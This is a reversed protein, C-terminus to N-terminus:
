VNNERDSLEGVWEVWSVDRTGMALPPLSHVPARDNDSRQFKFLQYNASGNCM